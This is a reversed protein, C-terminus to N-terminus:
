SADAVFLAEATLLALTRPGLSGPPLSRLQEDTDVDRRLGSRAPFELERYGAATHARRSGLGFAPAHIADWRATILVTGTNDADAIMALPFDDAVALARILEAPALAPLDGLLVGVNRAPVAAIGVAIAASLGGGPDAVVTAGLEAFQREVGPATVVVVRAAGLAAEVTDLAIALALSASGALRSKADATGKVPIVVTWDLRRGM